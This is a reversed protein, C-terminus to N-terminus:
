RQDKPDSSGMVDKFNRLSRLPENPSSMHLAGSTILITAICALIFGGPSYLTLRMNAYFYIVVGGCIMSLFGVVVHKHIKM